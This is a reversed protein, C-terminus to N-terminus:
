DFSFLRRIDGNSFCPAKRRCKTVGLNMDGDSAIIVRNNGNKIYNRLACDYAAEIGGSGNTGGNAEISDLAKYITKYKGAPCGEVLTDSSGAYTVISVVDDEDLAKTLRKFGEVAMSLKDADYMSGSSDILYVFNNGASKVNNDNATITM